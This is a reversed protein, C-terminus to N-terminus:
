NNLNYVHAVGSPSLFIGRFSIFFNTCSPQLVRLADLGSIQAVQGPLHDLMEDGKALALGVNNQHLPVPRQPATLDASLTGM